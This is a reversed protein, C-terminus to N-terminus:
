LRPAEGSPRSGCSRTSPRSTPRISAPSTRCWTTARRPTSARPIASSASRSQRTSSCRSSSRADALAEVLGHEVLEVADGEAFLHITRDVLQLDIKIQPKAFVILRPWMLSAPAEALRRHLGEKVCQRRGLLFHDCGLPM